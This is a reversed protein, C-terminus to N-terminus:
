HFKFNFQTAKTTHAKNCLRSEFLEIEKLSTDEESMLMPPPPVRPPKSKFNKVPAAAAPRPKCDAMLLGRFESHQRDDVASRLVKEAM